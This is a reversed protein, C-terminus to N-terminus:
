QRAQPKTDTMVLPCILFFAWMGPICLFDRAMAALRPFRTANNRWWTLPSDADSIVDETLYRSIEQSLSRSFTPAGSQKPVSAKFASEFDDFDVMEAKKLQPEM